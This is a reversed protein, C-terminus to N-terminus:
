FQFRFAFQIHRETGSQTGTIKGFNGEGPIPVGSSSLVADGLNGDPANFEPTNFLNFAEARFQVRYRETIVFDKFISFDLNKTGPATNSQLGLNGGALMPDSGVASLPPAEAVAAINFYESPSRGGSPAGGPNSLALPRCLNWQGQCNTGDITFPQGTHLTLVANTQWNGVIANTIANMSNGFKKGRGFPILYSLSTTFNHRIDWAASAYSTSINTNDKYGFGNSGSLTTGSNAL